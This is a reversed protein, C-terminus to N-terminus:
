QVEFSAHMGAQYHGPLNCILVYKGPLLYIDRTRTAGAKLGEVDGVAEIGPAGARAFSGRVPLSDPARQTRLIAMEHESPGDNTIAFHLHAAQTRNSGPVVRFDDLVV